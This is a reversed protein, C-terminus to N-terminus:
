AYSNRDLRRTELSTQGNAGKAWVLTCQNTIDTNCDDCRVQVVVPNTISLESMGDVVLYGDVAVRGGAGTLYGSTTKIMGSLSTWIGGCNPCKGDANGVKVVFGCGELERATLTISDYVRYYYKLLYRSGNPDVLDFVEYDGSSLRAPVTVRM